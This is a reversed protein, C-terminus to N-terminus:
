LKVIWDEVIFIIIKAWGFLESHKWDPKNENLTTKRFHDIAIVINYSHSM